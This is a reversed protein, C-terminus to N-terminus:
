KVNTGHSHDDTPDNDENVFDFGAVIRGAFEQNTLDIGSDLFAATINPSGTTIDWAEVADIDADIVPAPNSAKFGMFTGDNYAWYLRNVYDNPMLMEADSSSGAHTGIYNPESYVLLGTEMLKKASAKVNIDEEYKLILINNTNPRNSRKATLKKFSKGFQEVEYTGIQKCVSHLAAIGVNATNGKKRATNQPIDKLKIIIEGKKYDSKNSSTINQAQLRIFFFPLLLFITLKFYNM